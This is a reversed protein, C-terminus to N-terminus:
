DPTSAEAERLLVRYEAAKEPRGWAEYLAVIQRGCALTEDHEQGFSASRHEHAALLQPEAEAYRGLDTLCRGYHYRYMGLDLAAQEPTMEILRRFIPEAEAPRGVGTLAVAPVVLLWGLRHDGPRWVREANALAPGVLELAKEFRDHDILFRGYELITYLIYEHDPDHLGLQTQLIEEFLTEAEAVRGRKGVAVAVGSLVHPVFPHADGFVRRYGEVTQRAEDEAEAYRGLDTLAESLRMRAFITTHDDPGHAERSTQFTERALACAEHLRGLRRLLLTRNNMSSLTARHSEGMTARQMEIIQGSLVEGQAFKGEFVYEDALTSGAVLTEPDDDGLTL